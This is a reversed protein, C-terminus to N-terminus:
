KEKGKSMSLLGEMMPDLVFFFFSFACSKLTHLGLTGGFRMKAAKALM